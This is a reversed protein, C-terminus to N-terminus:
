HWLKLLAWVPSGHMSLDVRRADLVGECPTMIHM